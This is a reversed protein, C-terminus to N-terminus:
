PMVISLVSSIGEGSIYIYLTEGSLPPVRNETFTFTVNLMQCRWFTRGFIVPAPVREGGHWAEFTLEELDGGYFPNPMLLNFRLQAGSEGGDIYHIRSAVLRGQEVNHTRESITFTPQVQRTFEDGEEFGRFEIITLHRENLNYHQRAVFFYVFLAIFGVLMVRNIIKRIKRRDLTTENGDLRLGSQEIDDDFKDYM